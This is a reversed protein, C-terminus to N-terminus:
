EPRRRIVHEWFERIIPAFDDTQLEVTVDSLQATARRNLEINVLTIRRFSEPLNEVNDFKETTVTIVYAKDIKVGATDPVLRNNIRFVLLNGATLISPRNQLIDSLRHHHFERDKTRIFIRGVDGSRSVYISDISSPAIFIREFDVQTQNLFFIVPRSPRGNASFSLFLSVAVLLVIPISTKMKKSIYFLCM